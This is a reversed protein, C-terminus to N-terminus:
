SEGKKAALMKEVLEASFGVFENCRRGHMKLLEACQLSGYVRMFENDFDAPDGLGMERILKEAALVTGCKGDERRPAPINNDGNINVDEFAKYVSASCRNGERHLKKAEEGYKSM